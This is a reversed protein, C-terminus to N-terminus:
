PTDFRVKSDGVLRNILDNWLLETEGEKNREMKGVVEAV